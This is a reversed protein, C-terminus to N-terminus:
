TAVSTHFWRIGFELKYLRWLPIPEMGQEPVLCACFTAVDDTIFQAINLIDKISTFQEQGKCPAFVTSWILHNVVFQEVFYGYAFFANNSETAWGCPLYSM